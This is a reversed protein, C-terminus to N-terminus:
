FRERNALIDEECRACWIDNGEVGQWDYGMICCDPHSYPLEPMFNCTCGFLHSFEHQVIKIIHEHQKAIADDGLREALGATNCDPTDQHTFGLVVDARWWLLGHHIEDRMEDFIALLTTHADNSDWTDRKWPHSWFNINFMYVFANDASEIVSRMENQWNSGHYARFEEDACARVTVTVQPLDSALALDSAGILRGLEELYIGKDETTVIRRLLGRIEDISKDEEIHSLTYAAVVTLVHENLLNLERLEAVRHPETVLLFAIDDDGGALLQKLSPVYHTEPRIFGDRDDEDPEVPAALQPLEPLQLIGMEFLKEVYEDNHQVLITGASILSGAVHFRYGIGGLNIEGSVVDGYRILRVEGDRNLMDGEFLIGDEISKHTICTGDAVLETDVKELQVEFRKDGLIIVGTAGDDGFLIDVSADGLTAWSSIPGYDGLMLYHIGYGGYTAVLRDGENYMDDVPVTAMAFTTLMLVGLVCAISKM